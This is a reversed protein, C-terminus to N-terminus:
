ERSEDASAERPRKRELEAVVDPLAERVPSDALFKAALAKEGRARLGAYVHLEFQVRLTAQAETMGLAALLFLLAEITSFTGENQQARLWYRSAGTMPLSVLRGWREVSRMMRAAERWSGDLLLVQPTAPAAAVPLPEGLPHLIWLERGPRRIASENLPREHQFVHARSAPIARNILRGTSTPRWFERHHILVDIELPCEITRAGACICWRSGFRCRECRPAAKLVVSRAM